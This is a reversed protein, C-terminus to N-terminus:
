RRHWRYIGGEFWSSLVSGFIPLHVVRYLVLFQYNVDNVGYPAFDILLEGIAVVDLHNIESSSTKM